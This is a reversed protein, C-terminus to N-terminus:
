VQSAPAGDTFLDGDHRKLKRLVADPHYLQLVKRWETDGKGQIWEDVRREAERTVVQHNGAWDIAPEGSYPEIVFSLFHGKPRSLGERIFSLASHLAQLEVARAKEQVDDVNRPAAAGCFATLMRLGENVVGFCELVGKWPDGLTTVCTIISKLAYIDAMEDVVSLLTVPKRLEEWEKIIHRPFVIEAAEASLGSEKPVYYIDNVKICHHPCSDSNHNNLKPLWTLASPNEGQHLPALSSRNAFQGLIGQLHECWSSELSICPGRSLDGERWLPSVSNWQGLFSWIGEDLCAPGYKGRADKRGRDVGWALGDGRPIACSWEEVTCSGSGQSVHFSHSISVAISAATPM